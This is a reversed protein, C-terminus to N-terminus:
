THSDKSAAPVGPIMHDLATVSRERMRAESESHLGNLDVSTMLSILHDSARQLHDVVASRARPGSEALLAEVITRHEEVAAARRKKELADVRPQALRWYLAHMRVLPLSTTLLTDTLRSNGLSEAILFHLPEVGDDPRPPETPPDVALTPEYSELIRELKSRDIMGAASEAAFGELAQRIEYVQQIDRASIDRVRSISHSRTEVLRDVILRDIATRVPTRSASYREALALEVLPEGPAYLGATLDDRLM